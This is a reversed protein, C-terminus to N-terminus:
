DVYGLARLSRLVDEPVEAENLGMDGAVMQTHLLEAYKRFEELKGALLEKTREFAEGGLPHQEGPDDPLYYCRVEDATEDFILKWGDQRAAFQVMTPQRNVSFIPRPTLSARLDRGFWTAPVEGGAIVVLTASLDLLDVEEERREGAPFEEPYRLVLPVHTLEEYVSHGHARHGHDLFEEGHDATLVVLTDDLRGTERMWEILEGFHKDGYSIEGRYLARIKDPPLAHGTQYASDFVSLAALGGDRESSADPDYMTEYPAPPTYPAHPDISLVYLFYPQGAPVAELVRKVEAVVVPADAVLDYSTPTRLSTRERYLEKYVDFGKDFGFVTAVNPNAVIGVTLYGASKILEPLRTLADTAPSLYMKYNHVGHVSPAVGTMLSAVAPRTCSAPSSANVFLVGEAALRDFAPTKTAAGYCGIQDARMTDIMYVLINPRSVEQSTPATTPPEEAPKSECGSACWLGGSVAVAVMLLWVVGRALVHRSVTERGKLRLIQVAPAPRM